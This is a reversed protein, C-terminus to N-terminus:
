EKQWADAELEEKTREYLHGNLIEIAKEANEETIGTKPNTKVFHKILDFEIFEAFLIDDIIVYEDTKNKALWEKISVGRNSWHKEEPTVDLIELDEKKLEDRLYKVWNKCKAYDKHWGEKWTSTLVIKAGTEDAIKRLIKVLRNEIGLYGSVPIKEKTTRCNLVNDIDLFIIKRM